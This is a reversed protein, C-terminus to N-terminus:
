EIPQSLFSRFYDGPPFLYTKRLVIIRKGDRFGLEVGLDAIVGEDSQVHIANGM